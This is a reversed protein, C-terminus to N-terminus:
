CVYSYAHTTYKGEVYYNGPKMEADDNPVGDDGGLALAYLSEFVLLIEIM